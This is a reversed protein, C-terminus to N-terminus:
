LSFPFTIIFLSLFPFSFPFLFSILVAGHNSYYKAHLCATPMSFFGEFNWVKVELTKDMILSALLVQLVFLLLQRLPAADALAACPQVLSLGVFV